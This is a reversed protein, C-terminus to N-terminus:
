HCPRTPMLEDECRNQDASNTALIEALRETTEVIRLRYDDDLQYWACLLRKIGHDRIQAILTEIEDDRLM